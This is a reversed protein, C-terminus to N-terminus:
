IAVCASCASMCRVEPPWMDGQGLLYSAAVAVLFPRASARRSCAVNRQGVRQERNSPYRHKAHRSPSSVTRCRRLTDNLSLSLSVEVELTAVFGMVFSQMRLTVDKALTPHDLHMSVLFSSVSLHAFIFPPNSRLGLRGVGVRWRQRVRVGAGASVADVIGCMWERM